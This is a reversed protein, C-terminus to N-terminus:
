GVSEETKVSSTDLKHVDVEQYRANRDGDFSGSALYTSGEWNVAKINDPIEATGLNSGSKNVLSIKM